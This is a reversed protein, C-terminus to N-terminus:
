IEVNHEFSLRGRLTEGGTLPNRTNHHFQVQHLLRGVCFLREHFLINTTKAILPMLSLKGNGFTISKQKEIEKTKRKKITEKKTEEKRKRKFEIKWQPTVNFKTETNKVLMLQCANARAIVATQSFSM